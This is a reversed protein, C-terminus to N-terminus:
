PAKSAGGSALPAVDLVPGDRLPTTKIQAWAAMDFFIVNSSKTKADMDEIILLHKGDSSKALDIVPATLSHRKSEKRTETDFLVLSSVKKTNGTTVLVYLNKGDASLEMGHITSRLSITAVPKLEGDDEIVKGDDTKGARIQKLDYVAIDGYASARDHMAGALAAANAPYTLMTGYAVYLLEGKPDLAMRFGLHPIKYKKGRGFSPYTYHALTGLVSRVTKGQRYETTFLEKKEPDFAAAYFADLKAKMNGDTNAANTNFGGGSGPGVGGPGPGVGGGPM